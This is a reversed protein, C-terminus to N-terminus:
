RRPPTRKPPGQKELKALQQEVADLRANADRIAKVTEGLLGVINRQGTTLLELLQVVQDGAM